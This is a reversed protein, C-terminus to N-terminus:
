LQSKTRALWENAEGQMAPSGKAKYNSWAQTAEEHKGTAYLAIAHLRENEIQLRATPLGREKAIKTRQLAWQYHMRKVLLRAELYAGLGDTRLRDLERAVHMLAAEDPPKDIFLEQILAEQQGGAHLAILKVERTRAEGNTQPQKLLDEYLSRAQTTDGRAWLGDALGELAAAMAIGPAKREKDLYDLESQAEDLRNQKALLGVRAVHAGLDTEDIELISDCSELARSRDRAAQDATLTVHLKKMQHPCVRSFISQAALGREAIGKESQSLTVDNRLFAHWGTQLPQLDPVEGNRYMTVLAAPGQTNLVHRVFSGAAAYARRAPLGSFGIGMLRDIPPLTKDQLMAKAWQDPSLEERIDWSLAVALGEILGQNPWVGGWTGSIKFPGRAVSAAVAHVVEHRLVPHPWGQMQLYIERRWPKAIMTAGAGMLKQKEEPSRFFYARIKDTAKIGLEKETLDVYLDCDESLQNALLPPTQRPLVITCRQGEEVKGLEKEIHSASARHGLTVGLGYGCITMTACVAAVGLAWRSRSVFPIVLAVLLFSTLLRYSVYRDPLTVGVDYLAGPFYGAFVGFLYIAPTCWFLLLPVALAALPISAACLTAKIKSRLSIGIWAGVIAALTCGFLPGLFMFALGEIPACNRVRLANLALISIPIAYVWWASMLTKKLIRDRPAQDRRMEFAISGAMAAVAPPLLVGIILASEAGHVGVLPLAALVLGVIAGVAITAIFSM